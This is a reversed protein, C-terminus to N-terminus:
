KVVGRRKLEEVVMAAQKYTCRLADHITVISCVIHKEEV